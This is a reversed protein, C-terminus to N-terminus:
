VLFFRTIYFLLFPVILIFSTHTTSYLLSIYQLIGSWEMSFEEKKLRYLPLYLMLSSVCDQPYLIWILKICLTPLNRVVYETKFANFCQVKCTLGRTIGVPYMNTYICKLILYAEVQAYSNCNNIVKMPYYYYCQRIMNLILTIICIFLLLTLYYRGSFLM